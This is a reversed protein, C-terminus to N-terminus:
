NLALESAIDLATEIDRSLEEVTTLANLKGSPFSFMGNENKVAMFMQRDHFSLLIPQNFKEKLAVIREMLVPSLVYRAEVQDTSYVSFQETFRPDELKIKQEEKFKFSILRDLKAGQSKPLVVTHGKLKKKFTLWCFMGRYTHHMNDASKNSVIGKFIYRYFVAFLNLGPISM